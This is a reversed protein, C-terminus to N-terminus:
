TGELISLLKQEVRLTKLFAVSGFKIEESNSWQRKVGCVNGNLLSIVLDFTNYKEKFYNFVYYIETSNGSM